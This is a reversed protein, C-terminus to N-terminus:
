KVGRVFDNLSNAIRSVNPNALSYYVYKGEKEDKVLGAKKLKNLHQSVASQALGCTGILEQVNRKEKALCCLLMLRTSNSLANLVPYEM